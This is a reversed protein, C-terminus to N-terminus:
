NVPVFQFNHLGAHIVLFAHTYYIGANDNTMVAINSFAHVLISVPGYAAGGSSSTRTDDEEDPETGPCPDITSPKPMPSTTPRPTTTMVNCYTTNCACFTEAQSPLTLNLAALDAESSCGLPLHKYADDDCFVSFIEYWFTGVLFRKILVPRVNPASKLKASETM